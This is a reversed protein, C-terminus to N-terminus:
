RGAPIEGGAKEKEERIAQLGKELNPLLPAYFHINDLHDIIM